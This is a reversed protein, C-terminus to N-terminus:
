LGPTKPQSSNVLPENFLNNAPSQPEFFSEHSAARALNTSSEDITVPIAEIDILALYFMCTPFVSQYCICEPHCLELSVDDTMPIFCEM